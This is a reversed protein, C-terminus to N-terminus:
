LSPVHYSMNRARVMDGGDGCWAGALDARTTSGRTLNSDTGLCGEVYEM